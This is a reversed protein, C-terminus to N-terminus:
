LHRENRGCGPSLSIDTFLPQHICTYTHPKSQKTHGAFYSCTAVDASMCPCARCKWMFVFLTSTNNVCLTNFSFTYLSIIPFHVGINIKHKLWYCLCNQIFALLITDDLKTFHTSIVYFRFFYGFGLLKNFHYVYVNM